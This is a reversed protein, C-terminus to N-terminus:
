DRSARLRRRLEGQGPRAVVPDTDSEEGDATRMTRSTTSVADLYARM